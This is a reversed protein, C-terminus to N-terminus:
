EPVTQGKCTLLYRRPSKLPDKAKLQHKPEPQSLFHTLNPRHRLSQGTSIVLLSLRRM